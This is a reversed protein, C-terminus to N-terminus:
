DLSPLERSGNRSNLLIQRASSSDICFCSRYREEHSLTVEQAKGHMLTRLMVGTVRTAVSELM